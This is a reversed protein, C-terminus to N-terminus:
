RAPRPARRAFRSFHKRFKELPFGIINSRSGRVSRILHSGKGQLGFAGAKGRYEGTQLYRRIEEAGMKKFTVKSKDCLLKMRGTGADRMAVATYIWQSKDSFSQLMQFAHRKNKPKGLIRRRFEVLTDAGIVIGKKKSVGMVKGKAHNLAARRANTERRDKERYSSRVTKFSYGAKKLLARRQPSRSALFFM